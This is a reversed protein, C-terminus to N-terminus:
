EVSKRDEAGLQEAKEAQRRAAVLVLTKISHGKILSLIHAPNGGTISIAPVQEEIAVAVMEEYPRRGAGIAFNISFPKSTLEKVRKIEKRLSSPSPLSM